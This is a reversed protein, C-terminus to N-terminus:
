EDDSDASPGGLGTRMLLRCLAQEGGAGRQPGAITGDRDILVYIRQTALHTRSAVYQDSFLLHM